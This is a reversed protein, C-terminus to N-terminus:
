FQDSIYSVHSVPLNRDIEPKGSCPLSGATRITSYDRYEEEKWKRGKGEGEEGIKWLFEEGITRPANYAGEAPGPPALGVFRVLHM